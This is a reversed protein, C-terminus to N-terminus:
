VVSKRDLDPRLDGTGRYVYPKMFPLGNRAPTGPLHGQHLTM